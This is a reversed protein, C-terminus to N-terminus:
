ILMYDNNLTNSNYSPHVIS